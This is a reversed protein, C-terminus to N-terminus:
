GLKKRAPRANNSEVASSHRRRSTPLVHIKHAAPVADDALEMEEVSSFQGASAWSAFLNSLTPFIRKMLPAETPVVCSNNRHLM